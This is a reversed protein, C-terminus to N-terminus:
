KTNLWFGLPNLIYATLHVCKSCTYDKTMQETTDRKESTKMMFSVLVYGTM